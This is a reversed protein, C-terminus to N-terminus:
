RNTANLTTNMVSRGRNGFWFGILFTFISVASLGSFWTMPNKRIMSSLWNKPAGFRNLGLESKLSNIGDLDAEIQNLKKQIEEKKVKNEPKLFESM